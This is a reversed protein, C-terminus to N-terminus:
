KGGCNCKSCDGGCDTSAPIVSNDGPTLGLMPNVETIDQVSLRPYEGPPILFASNIIAANQAEIVKQKVATVVLPRMEQGFAAKLARQASRCSADPDSSFFDKLFQLRKQTEAKSVNM